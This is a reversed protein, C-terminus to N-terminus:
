FITKTEAEYGDNMIKKSVIMGNRKRGDQASSSPYTYTSIDRPKM